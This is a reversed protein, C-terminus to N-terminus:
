RSEKYKDEYIIKLIDIADLEEKIELELVGFVLSIEGEPCDTYISLIM